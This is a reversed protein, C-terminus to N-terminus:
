LYVSVFVRFSQLLLSGTETVSFFVTGYAMRAIDLLHRNTSYKSMKYLIEINVYQM